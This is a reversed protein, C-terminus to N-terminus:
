SLLKTVSISLLFFIMVVVDWSKTRIFYPISICDALTHLIVGTYTHLHVITFYAVIVGFSGTIRLTEDLKM